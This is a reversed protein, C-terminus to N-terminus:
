LPTVAEARSVLNLTIVAIGAALPSQDTGAIGAVWRYPM